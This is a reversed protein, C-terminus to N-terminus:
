TSNNWLLSVTILCFKDLQNTCFPDITEICKTLLSKSIEWFTTKIIMHTAFLCAFTRLGITVYLNKERNRRWPVSYEYWLVSLLIMFLNLFRIKERKWTWSIQTSLLYNHLSSKKNCLRYRKFYTQKFLIIFFCDKKFNTLKM